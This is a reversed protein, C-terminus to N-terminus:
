GRETKLLLIFLPAGIVATVAGVPLEVPALIVRALLDALVLVIGGVLFSAPILVRHDPGFLKRCVHPVILGVFGIAGSLSVLVGTILSAIVYSVIVIKRVPVGLQLATEEGLAIVNYSHAMLYLVFVVVVMFPALIFVSLSQAMGLNGLLWFLVNRVPDGIVVVLALVIASLFAGVMVGALLLIESELVGNKMGVIYVLVVVLLAGLFAFMSMAGAFWTALGLAVSFLAGVSAGGSIGLIYPEALPNRLLVQFVVGAVALGGGVLVGLLVRPMRIEMLVTAYIDRGRYDPDIISFFTRLIEKLSISVSGISLSVMCVMSLVAALSIVM